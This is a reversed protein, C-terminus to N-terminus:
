ESNAALTESKRPRGRRRPLIPGSDLDRHDEGEEAGADPDTPETPETPETPGVGQTETRGSEDKDEVCDIREFDPLENNLLVNPRRGVEARYNFAQAESDDADQLWIRRKSWTVKTPTLHM